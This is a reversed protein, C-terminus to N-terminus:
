GGVEEAPGRWLAPALAPACEPHLELFARVQAVFAGLHGIREVPHTVEPSALGAPTWEAFLERPGEVHHAALAYGGGIRWRPVFERAFQGPTEVEVEEEPVELCLREHALTRLEQVALRTQRAVHREQEEQARVADRADTEVGLRLLAALSQPQGDFRVPVRELVDPVAPDIPNKM